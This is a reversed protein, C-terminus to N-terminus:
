RSYALNSYTGHGIVSKLMGTNSRAGATHHQQLKFSKSIISQCTSGLIQTTMNAEWHVMCGFIRVEM